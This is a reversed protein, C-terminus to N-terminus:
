AAPQGWASILAGALTELMIPKGLHGNMGASLCDHVDETRVNASLAYIPVDRYHELQRLQRTTELGDIGPMQVDMLVLDFVTDRCLALAAEGNEAESVQM